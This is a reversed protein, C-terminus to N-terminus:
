EKIGMTDEKKFIAAVILSFITGFFTMSFISTIFFSYPNMIVRTIGMAMDLEQDSINPNREIVTQEAEILMTQLAEPNIFKFFVFAYLGSIIGAFLSLLVGFGLAKGYSIFGELIEDRYTRLGHIIVGLLVLYSVVSASWHQQQGSIYYIISVIILIIGAMVGYQLAYKGVAKPKQNEINEM